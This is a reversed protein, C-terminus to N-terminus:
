ALGAVKEECARVLQDLQGDDVILRLWWCSHRRSLMVATVSHRLGVIHIANADVIGLAASECIQESQWHEIALQYFGAEDFSGPTPITAYGSTKQPNDRPLQNHRIALSEQLIPATLSLEYRLESFRNLDLGRRYAPDQLPEGTPVTM